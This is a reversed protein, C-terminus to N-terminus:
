NQFTLNVEKWYNLVSLEDLLHQCLRNQKHVYCLYSRQVFSTLISSVNRYLCTM